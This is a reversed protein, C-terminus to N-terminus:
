RHFHVVPGHHHHRSGCGRRHFHCACLALGIAAIVLLRFPKRPNPMTPEEAPGDRRAAPHPPREPRSAGGLAPPLTTNSGPEACVAETGAAGEASLLLM